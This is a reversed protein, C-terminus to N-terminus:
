DMERRFIIEDLELTWNRPRFASTLNTVAWPQGAVPVTATVAVLKLVVLRMPNTSATPCANSKRFSPSPSLSVNTTYHIVTFLEIISLVKIADLRQLLISLYRGVIYKTDLSLTVLSHLYDRDM